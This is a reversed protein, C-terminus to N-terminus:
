NSATKLGEYYAKELEGIGEIRGFLKRAAETFEKKKDKELKELEKRKDALAKKLEINKELLKIIDEKVEKIITEKKEKLLTEVMESVADKALKGKALNNEGQMLAVLKNMVDTYNKEIKDNKEKESEQGEPKTTPEEM